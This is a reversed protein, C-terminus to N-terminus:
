RRSTLRLEGSLLKPLLADRIDALTRSERRNASIKQLIDEIPKFTKGLSDLPPFVAKASSIMGLSLNAQVAHVINSHLEEQFAQQRMMLVLFAPPIIGPKPRVIAVAQNTNAPLLYDEVVGIRGITGAITYVVDNTRLISRKLAGKHVTEPIKTLKDYLISGDDAIANVRLYNIQAGSTRASSIDNQTPTTGKTIQATVQSLDRVKWGKPIEGLESDEFREPFLDALHKPLGPDRGESKARVPDFDVFWSKFVARAMAELTENMRRNLEIKDDMTGLIHAIARQEDVDEPAPMEFSEIMGKTLANRTGGAGAWSLLTTQMDPSVLYYRLFRPDLKEPDPRVIAVHQNVRAPLVSEEVQCCRAVSDGTINLLVDGRLVEVNSLEVAHEEGIFALGDRHFGDNHVNQSRILAYQGRDLYVGSGGRPTAGSGIKTCVDGLRISTWGDAAM